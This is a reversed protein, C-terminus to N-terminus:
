SIAFYDKLMQGLQMAISLHMIYFVVFSSGCNVNGVIQVSKYVRQMFLAIM